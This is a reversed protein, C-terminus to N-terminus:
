VPKDLLARMKGWPNKIVRVELQKEMESAAALARSKTLAYMGPSIRKARAAESYDCIKNYLEDNSRLDSVDQVTEAMNKLLQAHNGDHEKVSDM